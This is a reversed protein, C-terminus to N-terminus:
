ENVWLGHKSCCFYIKEGYMRPFRVEGGQEPYLKILLIRDCAIYAIFSLYHTKSMEHTFTVYFDDEVKEVVLRHMEDSPKPILPVLKRGCCSVEAEGTATLINGCTPCVYFKIKKMNGGDADNPELNGLLIKEINVGLVESLEYLLAVDPCGLGREWKSIAKDSINMADALQKQTMGKEKRLGLILKGVKNCDM